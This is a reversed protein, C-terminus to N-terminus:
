RLFRKLLGLSGRQRCLATATKIRDYLLVRNPLGTLADTLAM